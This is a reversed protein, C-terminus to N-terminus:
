GIRKEGPGAEQSRRRAAPYSRLSSRDSANERRKRHKERIPHDHTKLPHAISMEAYDEEETLEPKWRMPFVKHSGHWKEGDWTAFVAVKGGFSRVMTPYIHESIDYGDFYPLESGYGNTYRLFREFFDIERLKDLFPRAFFHCCGLLYYSSTVESETFKEIWFPNVHDVRGDNGLMWVGLEDAMKLNHKFRDSAFLADYETYCLWDLDPWLETAQQLGLAVNRYPARHSNHRFGKLKYVPLRVKAGWDDWKAGDVVVLVKDSVWTRISDLTDMVLDTHGHANLVTAIQM